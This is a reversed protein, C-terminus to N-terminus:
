IGYRSQNRINAEYSQYRLRDDAYNDVHENRKWDYLVYVSDHPDAKITVKRVGLSEVSMHYLFSDSVNELVEIQTQKKGSNRVIM